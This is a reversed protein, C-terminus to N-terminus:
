GRRLFQILAEVHEPPTDKDVGHGLNFIHPRGGVGDLIDQAAQLMPQGGVLLYAPDLNGQVPKQVADCAWKVSMSSDISVANVGTEAAYRELFLGAGRPFGIIPIDPHEERVRSVIEATPKIVCQGFLREPLVGAWTDFIQLAEAGAEVQKCLYAVTANVLIDILKQFGDPAEIAWRKITFFDRSSGGEVMYTAVTWPAGAFGILTTQEPLSKSLRRVTEYVPALTKHIDDQNLASLGSMNQIAALKPGVGAKFQVDQGLADPIVLIDSFLIAADVGYRRVPQLTIEEALEPTYCRDFFSPAQDRIRWYEPLHRGAQRMLWVPPRPLAMGSLVKLIPKNTKQGSSM